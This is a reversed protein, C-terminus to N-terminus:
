RPAGPPAPQADLWRLAAAVAVAAGARLSPWRGAMPPEDPLGLWGVMGRVLALLAGVLADPDLRHPYSALVEAPELASRRRFALSMLLAAVDHAPHTVRATAWDLLVPSGDPRWLVNDLHPERHVWCRPGGALASLRSALADLLGDLGERVPGLDEPYRETALGVRAAWREPEWPDPVWPEGEVGGTAAHLGAVVEALARAQEATCGEVEDGQTAPAVDELLVVGRDGDLLSWGYILPVSGALLPGCAELAAAEAETKAATDYKAVLTAARGAATVVYLRSTESSLGFGM